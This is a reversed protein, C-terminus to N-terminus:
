YPLTGYNTPHHIHVTDFLESFFLAVCLNFHLHESPDVLAVIRFDFSVLSPHIEVLAFRKRQNKACAHVVKGPQGVLFLGIWACFLLLLGQRNDTPLAM